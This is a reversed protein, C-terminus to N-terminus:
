QLLVQWCIKELEAFLLLFDANKKKGYSCLRTDMQIEGRLQKIMEQDTYLSVRM